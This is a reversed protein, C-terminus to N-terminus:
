RRKLFDFVPNCKIMYTFVMYVSVFITGQLATTIITSKMGFTSFYVFYYAIIGSITYKFISILNFRFNTTKVLESIRLFCIVMYGITIGVVAGYIQFVPILIINSIISAIAGFLVSINYGKMKNMPILYQAAISMQLSQFVLMPTLLPIIKRIELFKVGFFWPVLSNSISIIAFSTMITVFLQFHITKELIKITDEKKNMLNSMRPIMVTNLANIISGSLIVLTLSNSYYGVVSMSTMIGLITKTLNQYLTMAVKAIFFELANKLHSYVERATVPVWDIYKKISVWLSMESLLNSVSQILFYIYLDSKSHILLVIALFSALKIIFNRITILKFDEVGGFFWSIDFITGIITLSQIIYLTSNSSFFSFIIYVIFTFGSFFLNFFQLEWFMKSREYRNDRVVAIERVGYNSLGLGAVLVFYAVISSVYNYIGIGSPGLAKSIIPVTALPLIVLLVQYSAQYFFNSVITKKFM